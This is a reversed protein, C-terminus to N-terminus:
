VVSSSVDLSFKIRKAARAEVALRALPMKDRRRLQRLLTGLVSGEAARQAPVAKERNLLDYTVLHIKM